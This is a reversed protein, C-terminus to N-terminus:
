NLKVVTFDNKTGVPTWAERRIAANVIDGHGPKGRQTKGTIERVESLSIQAYAPTIIPTGEEDEGIRVLATVLYSPDVRTVASSVYESTDLTHGYGALYNALQRIPFAGRQGENSPVFGFHHAIVRADDVDNIKYTAM